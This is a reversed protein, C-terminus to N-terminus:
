NREFPSRLFEGGRMRLEEALLERRLTATIYDRDNNGSKEKLRRWFNELLIGMREDPSKGVDSIIEARRDNAREIAARSISFGTAITPYRKSM